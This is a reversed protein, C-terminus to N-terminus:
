ATFSLRAPTSTVAVYKKVFLECTRVGSPVGIVYDKKKEIAKLAELPGQSRLRAPLFNTLKWGCLFDECMCSYNQGTHDLGGQIGTKFQVKKTLKIRM